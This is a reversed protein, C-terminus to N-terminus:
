GFLFPELIVETARDLSIVQENYQVHVYGNDDLDLLFITPARETSYVATITSPAHFALLVTGSNPTPTYTGPPNEVGFRVTQNELYVKENNPRPMRQNYTAVADRLRTILDNFLRQGGDTRLQARRELEQQADARRSVWEM